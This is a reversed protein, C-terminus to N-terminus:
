QVIRYVRLSNMPETGTLQVFKLPDEQMQRNLAPTGCLVYDAGFTERLVKAPDPELGRVLRQRMMYRAPSAQWLFAPELLDVFRVGPRAFLLYSGAEWQCNFVKGGDADAPLLAIAALYSPTDGGQPQDWIDRYFIQSANGQSVLLGLCTLPLAWGGTLYRLSYGVLLIVSPVAYEGARASKVTLLTLLCSLVLLFWFGAVEPGPRLKRVYALVAAGALAVPLFGFYHISEVLGLPQVEEGSHLGPAVGIGLALKIHVWSMVITSPFYPNLVLGFVLGPLAWQWRRPGGSAEPWRIAAAVALVIVPIYFAHYSLVFGATALAALWPRGRLIAALLLCFCLIALLHPRLLTLRFLFMPSLATAALVLIAARKPALVEQLTLYLCLVICTGLVPVVLLPGAEGGALWQAAGTLAHFLFEKDPFYHGWGLDEVQPLTRLLGGKATLASLGLHYYRDPDNSGVLRPPLYFVAYYALMVLAVAAGYLRRPLTPLAAASPITM